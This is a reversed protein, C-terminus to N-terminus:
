EGKLYKQYSGDILGDVLIEKSSRKWLRKLQREEARQAAIAEAAYDRLHDNEASSGLYRPPLQYNITSLPSNSSALFNESAPLSQRTGKSDEILQGSDM